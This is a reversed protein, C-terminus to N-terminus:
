SLVSQKSGSRGKKPSQKRIKKLLMLRNLERLIKAQKAQGPPHRKTPKPPNKELPQQLRPTIGESYIIESLSDRLM